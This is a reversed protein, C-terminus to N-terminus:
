KWPKFGDEQELREGENVIAMQEQQESVRMIQTKEVNKIVLFM